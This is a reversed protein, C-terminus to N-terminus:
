ELVQVRQLVPRRARRRPFLWNVYTVGAHHAERSTARRTAVHRPGCRKAHAAANAETVKVSRVGREVQGYFTEEVLM